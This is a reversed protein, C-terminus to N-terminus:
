DIRLTYIALRKPCANVLSATISSFIVNLPPQQTGWLVRITAATETHYNPHLGYQVRHNM